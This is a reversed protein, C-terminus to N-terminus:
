LFGLDSIFFPYNKGMTLFNFYAFYQYGLNSKVYWFKTLSTIKTPTKLGFPILYLSQYDLTGRVEWFHWFYSSNCRFKPGRHSSNNLFKTDKFYNLLISLM